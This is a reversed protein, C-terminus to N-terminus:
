DEYKLYDYMAYLFTANTPAKKILEPNNGFYKAVQNINTFEFADEISRKINKEVYTGKTGMKKAVDIYLEKSLRKLKCPDKYVIWLSEVLYEYGKEKVSFGIDLLISRIKRKIIAEETFSDDDKVIISAIREYLNKEEFVGMIIKGAIGEDKLIDQIIKKITESKTTM